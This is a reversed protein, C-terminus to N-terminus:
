HPFSPPEVRKRRPSRAGPPRAGCLCTAMGPRHPARAGRSSRRARGSSCRAGPPRAGCRALPKNRGHPAPARARGATACCSAPDQTAASARMPRRAAVWRCKRQVLIYPRPKGGGTSTASLDGAVRPRGCPGGRCPFWRCLCLRRTRAFAAVSAVAARGATAGWMSGHGDSTSTPSARRALKKKGEWQFLRAGPPRAGCLGTAMAPRHPARAGRSSRRARGSSRCRARRDRGVYVRAGCRSTM